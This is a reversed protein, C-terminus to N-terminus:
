IGCVKEENFMKNMDVLGNDTLEIKPLEPSKIYYQRFIGMDLVRSSKRILNMIEVKIKEEKNDTINNIYENILGVYKKRDNQDIFQIQEIFEDLQNKTIPEILELILDYKEWNESLYSKFSLPYCKIKIKYRKMIETIIGVILDNPFYDPYLFRIMRETDTNIVDKCQYNINDCNLNIYKLLNNSKKLECLIETKINPNHQKISNYMRPSFLLRFHIDSQLEYSKQRLVSDELNLSTFGTYASKGSQIQQIQYHIDIEEIIEVVSPLKSNAVNKELIIEKNALFKCYYGGSTTQYDIKDQRFKLPSFNPCAFIDKYSNLSFVNAFFTNDEVWMEINDISAGDYIFDKAGKIFDLYYFCKKRQSFILRLTYLFDMATLSTNDSWFIKNTFKLCIVNDKSMDLFYPSIYEGCVKKIIPKYLFNVILKSNTDMADMPILSGPLDDVFFTINDLKHM